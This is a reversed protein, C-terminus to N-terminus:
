KQKEEEKKNFKIKIDPVKFGKLIEPSSCYVSFDNKFAIQFDKLTKKDTFKLYLANRAYKFKENPKKSSM